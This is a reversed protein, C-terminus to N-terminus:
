DIIVSLKFVLDAKQSKDLLEVDLWAVSVVGLRPSGGGGVARVVYWALSGSRRNFNGLFRGIDSLM